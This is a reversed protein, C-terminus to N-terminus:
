KNKKRIKRVGRKGNLRGMGLLRERLHKSFLYRGTLSIFWFVMIIGLFSYFMTFIKGTDTKPVFDGYGITTVTVITYYYSDLMRWGEVNHYVNAGLIILCVFVIVSMVFRNFLKM